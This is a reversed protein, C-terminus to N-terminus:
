IYIYIYINFVVMSMTPEEFLDLKGPIGWNRTYSNFTVDQLEESLDKLFYDVIEFLFVMIHNCYSSAGAACNWKAKELTSM